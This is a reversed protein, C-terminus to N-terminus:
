IMGGYRTVREVLEKLKEESEVYLRTLVKMTGIDYKELPEDPYIEHFEKVIEIQDILPQNIYRFLVTAEDPELGNKTNKVSDIQYFYVKGTREDNAYKAYVEMASEKDYFIGRSMTMFHTGQSITYAITYSM